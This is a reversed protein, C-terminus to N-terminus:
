LEIVDLLLSNISSSDISGYSSNDSSVGEIEELRQFIKIFTKLYMPVIYIEGRKKQKKIFNNWERYYQYNYQMRNIKIKCHIKLNFDLDVLLWLIKYDFRYKKFIENM